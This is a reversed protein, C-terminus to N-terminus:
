FRPRRQNWPIKKERKIHAWVLASAYIYTRGGWEDIGGNKKLDNVDSADCGLQVMGLGNQLASEFLGVRGLRNDQRQAAGFQSSATREHCSATVNQREDLERHVRVHIANIHKDFAVCHIM